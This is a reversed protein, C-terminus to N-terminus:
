LKTKDKVEAVLELTDPEVETKSLKVRKVFMEEEESSGSSLYELNLPNNAVPSDRSTVACQTMMHSGHSATHSGLQTTYSDHSAAVQGNYTQHDTMQNDSQVVHSDHSGRDHIMIMHHEEPQYGVGLKSDEGDANSTKRDDSSRESSMHSGHSRKRRYVRLEWPTIDQYSPDLTRVKTM